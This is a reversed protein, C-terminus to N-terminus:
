VCSSGCRRSTRSTRPSSCATARPIRWSRSATPHARRRASAERRDNMLQQIRPAITEAQGNEVQVVALGLAPNLPMAELQEVLGRIAKVDEPSAAVLLSGTRPDTLVLPRSRKAIEAPLDAYRREMVREIADSLRAMDGGRVAVVEVLSSDPPPAADLDTALRTIVEFADNGAAVILANSRPDALVLAKELDATEPQVRRLRELRADMM